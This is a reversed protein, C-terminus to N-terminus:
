DCTKRYMHRKQGCAQETMHREQVYTEETMHGEDWMGPEFCAPKLDCVDVQM